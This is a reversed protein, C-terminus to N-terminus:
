HSIALCLVNCSTSTNSICRGFLLPESVCLGESLEVGFFSALTKEHHLHMRESIVNGFTEKAFMKSRKSTTGMRLLHCM